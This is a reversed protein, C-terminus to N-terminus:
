NYHERSSVNEIKRFILSVQLEHDDTNVKLEDKLSKGKQLLYEKDIDFHKMSCDLMNKSSDIEQKQKEIKSSCQVEIKKTLSTFKSSLEDLNVCFDKMSDIHSKRSTSVIRM